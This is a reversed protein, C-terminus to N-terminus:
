PRYDYVDHLQLGPDIGLEARKAVFEAETLPGWVQPTSTNLIWFSFVGPDPEEYKDKPNSPSRRRLHQQKAIVWTSDHDLEVVKTPIIPTSENWGSPAVMIQHASTRHIFYGNPLTASFDEAGPGPIPIFDDCGTISLLMLAVLLSLTRMAPYSRMRWVIQEKRPAVGHEERFLRCSLAQRSEGCAAIRRADHVKHERRLPWCLAGDRANRAEHSQGDAHLFENVRTLHGVVGFQGPEGMDGAGADRLYHVQRQEGWVDLLRDEEQRGGVAAASGDALAM